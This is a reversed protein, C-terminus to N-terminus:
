FLFGKTNKQTRIKEVALDTILVHVNRDLSQLHVDISNLKDSIIKTTTEVATLREGRSGIIQDYNNMKNQINAALVTTFTIIIGVSVTLFYFLLRGTSNGNNNMGRRDIGEYIINGAKDFSQIVKTRSMLLEKPM